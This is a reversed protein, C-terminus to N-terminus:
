SRSYLNYENYSANGERGFPLYLIRHLAPTADANIYKFSAIKNWSGSTDAAMYRLCEPIENSEEPQSPSIMEVVYSCDEISVYRDMEERNLDNFRGSQIKLSESKSGHSTFPQPLQGGFSSKLFGM